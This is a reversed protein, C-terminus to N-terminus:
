ANIGLRQKVDPRFNEVIVDAGEFRLSAFYERFNLAGTEAIRDQLRKDVFYRKNDDFQIGTKRYFFERFKNFDADSISARQPPDAEAVGSAPASRTYTM